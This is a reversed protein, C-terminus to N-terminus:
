FHCSWGTTFIGEMGYGLEVFFRLWSHGVEVGIPSLQGALHWRRESLHSGESIAKRAANTYGFYADNPLDFPEFWNHQSM